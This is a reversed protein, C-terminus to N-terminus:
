RTSSGMTAFPADTPDHIWADLIEWSSCASFPNVPGFFGCDFGSCPRLVEKLKLKGRRAIPFAFRAPVDIITMDGTTDDATTVRTVLGLGWGNGSVGGDIPTLGGPEVIDKCSARITVEQCTAFLPNSCPDRLRASISFRCAGKSGFRYTSKPTPPGCAPVGAM